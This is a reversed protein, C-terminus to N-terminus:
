IYDYFYADALTLLFIILMEKDSKILVQREYM